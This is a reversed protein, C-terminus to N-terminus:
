KVLYKKGDKIYVGKPLGELTNGVKRGQLDYVSGDYNRKIDVSNIATTEESGPTYRYTHEKPPIFALMHLKENYKVLAGSNGIKEWLSPQLIVYLHKDIWCYMGKDDRGDIVFEHGGGGVVVPVGRELYSDIFNWYDEDSIPIYEWPEGEISHDIWKGGLFKVEDYKYIDKMVKEWDCYYQMTNACTNGHKYNVMFALGVHYCLEAVAKAEENTWSDNYKENRILNWNFKTYPVAVDRFYTLHEEGEKQTKYSTVFEDASDPYKFFAMVESIALPVCGVLAHIDSRSGEEYLIPCYQNLPSGQKWVYDMLCPIPTTNRPVYESPIEGYTEGRTSGRTKLIPLIEELDEPLNNEDISTEKSYALIEPLREDGSIIVCGKGDEANFIYYPNYVEEGRTTARPAKLKKDSLFKQAKQFAESESVSQANITLSALAYLLILYKKM